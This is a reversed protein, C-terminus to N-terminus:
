LSPVRGRFRLTRSCGAGRGRIRTRRRASLHHIGEAGLEKGYPTRYVLVPFAGEGRPRLVDARLIVGDRMPVAVDKEVVFDQGTSSQLAAALLGLGCLLLLLLFKLKM